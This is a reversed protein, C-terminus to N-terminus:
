IKCSRQDGAPALGPMMWSYKTPLYKMRASFLAFGRLLEWTLSGWPQGM